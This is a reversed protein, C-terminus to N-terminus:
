EAFSTSPDPISCWSTLASTSCRRLEPASIRPTDFTHEIYEGFAKSPVNVGAYLEGGWAQWGHTGGDLVAVNTWGLANARAAARDALGVGNPGTSGDDCWIVQTDRRPVLEDLLLELNSVPVCSARFLHSHFYVGQERADLVALEEGDHLRRALEAPSIREVANTVSRVSSGSHRRQCPLGEM